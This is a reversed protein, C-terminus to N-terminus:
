SRSSTTSCPRCVTQRRHSSRRTAHARAEVASGTRSRGCAAPSRPRGPTGPPSPPTSPGSGDVTLAEAVSTEEIALQMADINALVERTDPGVGGGADGRAEARALGRPDAQLGEVKSSAISETRLLLRALPDLARTRAANLAAIAREADSVVGATAAPLGFDDGALPVPEFTAYDCARRHRAPAYRAPDGEWRRQVLRGRVVGDGQQEDTFSLESGKGLAFAM